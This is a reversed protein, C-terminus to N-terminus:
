LGDPQPVLGARRLLAQIILSKSILQGLVLVLFIHTIVLTEVGPKHVFRILDRLSPQGCVAEWM